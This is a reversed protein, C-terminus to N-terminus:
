GLTKRELLPARLMGTPKFQWIETRQSDDGRWSDPGWWKWDPRNNHLAGFSNYRNGYCRIRLTHTGPSLEGLEARYPAYAIPGCDREDCFIRLLPGGFNPCRLAYSGAESITLTTEYDM